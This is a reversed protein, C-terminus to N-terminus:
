KINSYKLGIWDEKYAQTDEMKEISDIVDNYYLHSKSEAPKVVTDDRAQVLVYNLLAKMNEAYLPNEDEQENNIDALFRSEQRYKLPAGMSVFTLVPPDNYREIYARILLNGQGLGVANFGHKLKEDKLIEAKFAQLQDDLSNLSALGNAVNLCNVHTGPYADTITECLAKMGSNTGSDGMGHMVIVPLAPSDEIIKKEYELVPFSIHLDVNQVAQPVSTSTQKPRLFPLVKNEWFAQDWRMHDGEYVLVHVGGKEDLSRLGLWDEKYGQTEQLMLTKKEDGWEYFGHEESRAPVVMSDTSAEVMVYNVLKKINEAYQTNKKERENNIDALFRSKELYEAKDYTNKWYDSFAIPAGYPSWKWIPCVLRFILHDPCEGVGGHPGVMSVYTLVPPNNYREIYARILLNGQSIGVANFGNVLEQDKKIEDVFENLQTDLTETISSVANAVNLCNVHTGPYADSIGNCFSQMGPNFSADGMGHMVVTPPAPKDSKAKITYHRGLLQMEPFQVDELLIPIVKRIINESLELSACNEFPTLCQWPKCKEKDHTCNHIKEQMCWHLEIYCQACPSIENYNQHCGAICSPDSFGSDSRCIYFCRKGHQIRTRIDVDSWKEPDEKQCNLTSASSLGVYILSRM